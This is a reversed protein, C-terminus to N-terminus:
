NGRMSMLYLHIAEAAIRQGEPSWHDDDSYYPLNGRKVAAALYPTLDLYGVDASVPGVARELRSPLDNLTWAGCESEKPFQTFEHFARFKIPVFVFIFRAGQALSLRKAEMLDASTEELAGLDDQTLPLSPYNFYVTVPQGEATQVVGSRLAGPPRKSRRWQSHIEALSNYLFSHNVVSSIKSTLGPKPPPQRRSDSRWHLVDNLDNGEYFLWLITRPRLPLAYRRLVALEQPPGYGYQGLNAVTRGELLALQTNLLQPTPTTMNEVFSDGIVAIDASTLDRDNRFGNQDYTLDWHYDGMESRPIQFGTIINGGRGSGTFHSHPAHIYLLERDTRNTSAFMDNSPSILTRYDVLHVFGIFEIFVWGFIFSGAVLLYRQATESRLM